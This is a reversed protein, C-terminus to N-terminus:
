GLFSRAGVFGERLREVTKVDDEFVGNNSGSSHIMRWGGLSVGVHTIGRRGSSFFLLDGPRYPEEVARGAEYQMDADRPLAM